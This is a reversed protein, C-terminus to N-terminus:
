LEAATGGVAQEASRETVRATTPRHAGIHQACPLALALGAAVIVVVAIGDVVVEGRTETDRWARETGSRLLQEQRTAEGAFHTAVFVLCATADEVGATM